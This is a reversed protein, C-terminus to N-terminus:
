ESLTLVVGEREAHHQGEPGYGRKLTSRGIRLHTCTRVQVFHSLDTERDAGLPTEDPQTQQGALVHIVAMMMIM